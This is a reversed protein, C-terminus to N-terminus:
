IVPVSERAIRERFPSRLDERIIVDTERGVLDCLLVRLSALDLLSFKRNPEIDVVVDLDSEPGAEGRAISGFLALRTVGRARIEDAHARLIGIAENRTMDDTNGVPGARGLSIM